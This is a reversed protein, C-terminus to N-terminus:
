SFRAAGHENPLPYELVGIPYNRLNDGPLDSPLWLPSIGIQPDWGM